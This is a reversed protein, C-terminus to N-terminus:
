QGKSFPIWRDDTSEGRLPGPLATITEMGHRKGSM